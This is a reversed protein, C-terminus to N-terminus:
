FEMKPDERKKEDAEFYDRKEIHLMSAIINNPFIIIQKNLLNVNSNYLRRAAQLHEEIDNISSMLNNFMTDAKLEPYKEVVVNIGRAVADLQGSLEAKESTTAQSVNGGRWKITNELTESEHKAYGKTVALLKTLQDFRKELAVDIGSESENVKENLTRLKNNLRVIWIIFIIVIVAVVIGVIAGASILFNFM